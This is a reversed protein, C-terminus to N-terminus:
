SNRLENILLGLNSGIEYELKEIDECYLAENKIATDINKILIEANYNTKDFGKLLKQKALQQEAYKRKSTVSPNELLKERDLQSAEDFHLLLWFEFCPNSVYFGFNKNRCKKLVYQYQNNNDNSVFSKKDRDVIFCIKDIEESYTINGYQIINSINDTLNEIGTEQELFKLINECDTRLDKVDLKISTEIKETCIWTLLKWINIKNAIYQPIIKEDILYDAIWNCLTEYSYYGSKYEELNKIMRDVIKKPNSWGQEGYSRIIPVLKILPDIGIEERLESLKDFYIQETEKGEYVLFYKKRVESSKLVTARVAFERKERM